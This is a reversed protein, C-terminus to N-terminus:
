LIETLELLALVEAGVVVMLVQYERQGALFGRDPGGREVLVVKFQVAVLVVM